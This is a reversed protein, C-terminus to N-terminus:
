PILGHENIALRSRYYKSILYMQFAFLFSRTVSWVNVNETKKIIQCGCLIYIDSLRANFTDELVETTFPFLMVKQLMM